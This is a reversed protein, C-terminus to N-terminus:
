KKKTQEAAASPTTTESSWGTFVEPEGRSASPKGRSDPNIRPAENRPPTVSQTPNTMQFMERFIGPAVLSLPNVLVQPRDMAGQVAFTIGLIGEGKPGALLQGLGPIAGVASNLGQLPVYTGGINVLRANFDAKGHFTAGLLAGRLEADGIVFQGYGVSFPMRMWDFEIAQRVVRRGRPAETVRGTEDSFQLVESVVPDGLLRFREVALLGTKEAPGRGDLNVDLRMRGGQLNPYFDVLRFVQGADDSVAVLRRPEKATQQLGVELAKGGDLAGKAELRTLKRGRKSLTMTVGRLSTESFGLVTDIDAKLDLGPQDKRQARPRDSLEGVSFLSKFFDRGDYTQGRAQIEWVNDGRLAGQIELRTILSISFAPFSFEKMRNQADLAVWGDIAIDDGVVKFNQLETKHRTGQAVDFQLLATRGPPKRWAINDLVLDARTLDASLHVHEQDQADRTVTLEVPVEGQVVNSLDVGLQARDAADLTASLRLPPQKEPPADFIRQWSLKAAVGSIVLDGKADMAKDSVDLAITAAQASHPGFLQRVRGDMLRAQAEVKVAAPDIRARLPLTVSVQGEVRGDISETPIGVLKGIGLEDHELVELVAAAPGQARFSIQGNPIETMIDTATFAGSKLLLKRGQSLTVSGEPASVELTSGEVRLEGAPIDIPPMRTWPRLELSSVALVMSVAPLPSTKRGTTTMDEPTQVRFSGGTIRGATVHKGVWDRAGAALARPWLVKFAPLPMAGIQGDLRAASGTGTGGIKGSLRVEGGGAQIVYESLDIAGAELRVVGRAAWKELPLPAIGFEEAALVGETGTLDFALREEGGETTSRIGGVITIHSKGWALTSPAVRLVGDAPDYKLDVRGGEVAFPLEGLWPLRVDGRSLDLSMSGGLLKGESTLEIAAEGTAPLNFAELPALGPLAGSITRPVFDRLSVKLAVQQTRESAQARFDFTWPGRASAVTVTGVMASRARQHRLMVDAVPISWLTKRAGRELVVVANRLGIERLFSSADSGSRAHAASQALARALDVQRLATPLGESQAEAGSGTSVAAGDVDPRAFSFSLGGQSSYSLLMRPEILVVKAPSLRARWLADRSLELAALPALALSNGEEDLVRVNRLRFELQHTENLRVLADEVTVGYGPLEAAISQAIPDALAKLSIPGFLLRVYAAGLVIAILLLLPALYKAGTLCPGGLLRLGHM